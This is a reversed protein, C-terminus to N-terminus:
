LAEIWAEVEEREGRYADGAERYHERAEEALGRARERAADAEAAPAKATSAILAQALAFATEAQADPSDKRGKRAAAAQELLDLASKTKGLALRVRGLGTMTMTVSPHEPGLHERKIELSRAFTAEAEDDDGLLRQAEGLNHLNLAVSPHDSGLNAERIRVAQQYHDAAQRFYPRARARDTWALHRGQELLSNGINNHSAATYPHDAGLQAEFIELARRAHAEAKDHQGQATLANAINTLSIAVEPHDAGLQAERIELARRHYEGASQNDGRAMALSGYHLDFDAELLPADGLRDLAARADAALIEGTDLDHELFSVRMLQTLAQVRTADDGAVDARRLAERLTQKAADLDRRKTQLDGLLLLARGEGHATGIERALALAKEAIELGEDYKALAKRGNANALLRELQGVRADDVPSDLLAEAKACAEIRSLSGAAVVARSVVDPDADVLLGTLQELETLRQGLCVMKRGVLEPSEEKRVVSAECVERHMDVWDEAYDDLLRATGQWANEAYPAKTALFSREVKARTDDDWVGELEREGGECPGPGQSRVFGWGLGAVVALAGVSALAVRRRRKRPDDALAALLSDMNPWREGADVALGRELARRVHQPVAASEPESLDGRVVAGALERPTKGLYPRQGYLKEWLAVCFAFQDSRADARQGLHQEPAMYAPTGLIAGTRTLPASLSDTSDLVGKGSASAETKSAASASGKAMSSASRKQTDAEADVEEDIGRALGFDLVRVRGDKGVLANDPKFDRHILGAAHAAALGRGAQSFMDLIEAVRAEAEPEWDRLTQGEVFEMAVYVQGRFTDFEFVQVVNPHSLKALAQAERTMRAHHAQEEDVGRLLKIAIKRDLQTDYASYVVGMGGAGLRALITYRGIRVPDAAAGFLRAAVANRMHEADIAAVRVPAAPRLLDDAVGDLEVRQDEGMDGMDGMDLERSAESGGEDESRDSARAVKPAHVMPAGPVLAARRCRAGLSHDGGILSCLSTSWAVRSFISAEIRSCRTTSNM